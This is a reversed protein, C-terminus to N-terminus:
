NATDVNNLVSMLFDSMEKELQGEMPFGTKTTELALHKAVVYSSGKIKTGDKATIIIDDNDTSKMLATLTNKKKEEKEKKPHMARIKLEIRASIINEAEIEKFDKSNAFISKILGNKLIDFSKSISSFIGTDSFASDSIEISKINPIPVETQENIVPSFVYGVVEDDDKRLLWDFYAQFSKLSLMGPTYILLENSLLFYSYTKVTGAISSQAEEAIEELSIMKHDLQEELINAIEGEKMRILLGFIYKKKQKFSAIFDGERNEDLESLKMFRDNISKSDSLVKMIDTLPKLENTTAAAASINYAIIKLKKVAM